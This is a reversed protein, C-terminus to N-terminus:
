PYCTAHSGLLWVIEFLPPLSEIWVSKVESTTKPETEHRNALLLHAM